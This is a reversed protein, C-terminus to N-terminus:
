EVIFRQNNDESGSWGKQDPSFNLQIAPVASDSGFLNVSAVQVRNKRQLEKAAKAATGMQQDETVATPASININVRTRSGTDLRVSRTVTYEVANNLILSEVMDDFSEKAQEVSRPQETEVQAVPEPQPQPEPSFILAIVYLAMWGFSVARFVTSYGKKLTVWAFIIPAIFVGLGLLVKKATNSTTAM